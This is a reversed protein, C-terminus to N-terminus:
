ELSVKKKKGIQQGEDLPHMRQLHVGCHYCQSGRLFVIEQLAMRSMSLILNVTLMFSVHWSGWDRVLHGWAKQLGIFSFDTQSERLPGTICSTLVSSATIFKKISVVVPSASASGDALGDHWFSSHCHTLPPWCLSWTWFNWCLELPIYNFIILGGEGKLAPHHWMFEKRVLGLSGKSSGCLECLSWSPILSLNTNM